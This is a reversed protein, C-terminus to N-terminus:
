KTKKKKEFSLVLAGSENRRINFSCLNDYKKILTDLSYLARMYTLIEKNTIIIRFLFFFHKAVQFIICLINTIPLRKIIFLFLLLFLFMNLAWYWACLNTSLFKFKLGDISHAYVVLGHHGPYSGDELQINTALCTCFYPCNCM